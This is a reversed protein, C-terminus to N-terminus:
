QRAQYSGGKAPQSAQGSDTLERLAMSVAKVSWPGPRGWQASLEGAAAIVEGRTVPGAAQRLVLRVADICRRGEPEPVEAPPAPPAPSRVLMLRPPGAPRAGPVPAVTATPSVPPSAARGMAELFRDDLVPVPPPSVYASDPVRDTRMPADPRADYGDTYSLGATKTGDAFFRPIGSPDKALGLMGASVANATRGSWVTGGRLMDRLAQEGGLEKLGPLQTALTLKGGAKRILRALEVVMATIQRQSKDGDKLVMHAEDLIILPIKLGTLEYDFFPMGPMPVPGAETQNVWPMTALYGSRDLFGAHLGRVMREVEGVGSAYLCKDRWFPLSQGEQPDCIVPVFWGTALALFVYLNLLESKGSGTTGSVLDHDPGYRPTYWRAHADAGDAFRGITVLGTAPDMGRGDWYRTGALSNGDLITLSGRSTVGRPDREAYAETVPRHWAGAVNEPAVLISRMVTRLGDCQVPYTRGGGPLDRRAGLVANWQQVGALATWTAIDQDPPAPLAAAPQPQWRYRRARLALFPAATLLVWAACARLGAAALLPLWVATAAGEAATFRRSWATLRYKGEADRWIAALAMGGGALGGALLGWWTGDPAQHLGGGAALLLGAWAFPQAHKRFRWARRPLRPRAPLAAPLAAPLRPRAPLQGALQAALLQRAMEEAQRGGPQGAPAQARGPMWWPRAVPAPRAWAPGAQRAAQAARATRAARSFRPVEKSGRGKAQRAAM